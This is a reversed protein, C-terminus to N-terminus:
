VRARKARSEFASGFFLVDVSKFDLKAASWFMLRALPYESYAGEERKAEHIVKRSNNGTM